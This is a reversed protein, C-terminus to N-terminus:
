LVALSLVRVSCGCLLLPRFLRCFLFHSHAWLVSATTIMPEVCRFWRRLEDKMIYGLLALVTVKKATSQFDRSTPKVVVIDNGADVAVEHRAM